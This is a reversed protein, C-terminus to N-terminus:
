SGPNSVPRHVNNSWTKTGRSDVIKLEGDNEISLTFPGIGRGSTQTYWVAGHNRDYMVLNGDPQM